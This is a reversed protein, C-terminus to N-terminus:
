GTSGGNFALFGFILIFGGLASFPVSHGKIEISKNSSKHFRGIRPGMIYAAVLSIIGGCVHVMGAGAFDLYTASSFSPLGKKMWGEDTWGWHTLIPYVFTSIVCCYVIYCVVECREAVAGGVITTATAAFVFQFFFKSQIHTLDM